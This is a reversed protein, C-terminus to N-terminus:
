MIVDVAGVERDSGVRIGSDPLKRGHPDALITRQDVAQVPVATRDHPRTVNHHARTRSPVAPGHAPQGRQQVGEVAGM